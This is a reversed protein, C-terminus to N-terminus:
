KILIDAKIVDGVLKINNISVSTSLGGYSKSHPKSSKNFSTNNATGPFTDGADGSNVSRELDKVGDAQMLAVKYHRENKNEAESDDIHWILLGKGPIYKDYKTKQRNEVLFYEKNAVGNKWLKYVKNSKKVDQIEVNLLNSTPTIIDVWGQSCKCWASPHAPTDGDNNWFGGSMLCWEGIGESDSDPDYLDPFGFLLHGLEHVCVGLKCDEPVTMYAYIKTQGDTNYPAGDLVDKHSWIDSVNGTVEGGTGSHVIVFGDVYNDGNIDYKSFDILPNVLKATDRAMTRGNPVTSSLGHEQNAYEKLKKPLRFPGIVDGTIHVKNNSVEKYYESVSGHQLVGKSFFLDEFHKKDKEFPKDEFDVLVVIMKIEGTTNSRSFSRSKLMVQTAGLEFETGPFTLGDNLGFRTPAILKLNEVIPLDKFHTKITLIQSKIRKKLDPHPAAPYCERSILVKKNKM